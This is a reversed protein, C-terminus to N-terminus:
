DGKSTGCKQCTIRVTTGKADKSSHWQTGGCKKCWEWILVLPNREVFDVCWVGQFPPPTTPHQERTLGCDACHKSRPVPTAGLAVAAICGPCHFHSDPLYACCDADDHTCDCDSYDKIRELAAVLAAVRQDNDM